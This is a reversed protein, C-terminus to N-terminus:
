LGKGLEESGISHLYGSEVIYFDVRAAALSSEAVTLSAEIELLRNGSLVGNEHRSRALSFSEAAIRYEKRTSIYKEYALQM